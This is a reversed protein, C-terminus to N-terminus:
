ASYTGTLASLQEKILTLTAELNAYRTTLYTKEDDLRSNEEDIRDQTNSVDTDVSKSDVDVAGSTSALVSDLTDQMAGAFGQKINVLANFTGDASLDITLQLGNEPYVPKGNSDFSLDGTIMNGSVTANRWASDGESALKIQASTITGGSVTVRVNYQNASTNTDSAGYFRITSSNSYGTKAAGILDLVGLYNDSVAKNFADTDLSLQGNKDLDLGIQGPFLYKDVNSIFGQAQTVLSSYLGDNISSVTYDGMLVGAVKTTTNYGTKDSIFSALTNYNEVLSNMKSTILETNRTLTIEEGNSDSTGHLYFTIGDVVDSITNSSRSIYEDVGKTQETTALTKNSLNSSDILINSVDGLTNKFTFTLNGTSNLAAGSVTIDGSQVSPLADLADQIDQLSADYSIADTTYGGYSLTFTGSTVASSHQIQQVESVAANSPFGDVKIKSDQAIQSRTFDSPTFGSLSAATSGGHTSEAMTPLNLVASSGNANYTLNLTLKSAGSFKDTVVIKGNDLTATVNNDFANEIADLIHSVKTNETLNLTFPTITKGTHDTGNIVITEDGNFTTGQFQDLKTLLTTTDANDTSATLLSGSQWVETSSPNVHIEYDSGASNGSLVLHYQNNYSLLTATVGPNDADHNILGILDELSTTATTTVSTEKGDYSYIFTGAGVYDEKYKLGTTQVWRDATALQNVVVSHNGEYANSNADATVISDDSTSINFSRLSDADSLAKVSTQLASLNSKFTVLADQKDQLSSLKTKYLNLQGSDASIIQSIITSTDIGTSLGPFTITSM